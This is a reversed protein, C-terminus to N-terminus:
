GHLSGRLAEGTAKAEAVAQEPVPPSGKRLQARGALALGLTLLLLGGTVILLSAWLPLFTALAAAVTALGFGIAFLGFLVAGLVLATGAGLAALKHRLEIAALEGELRALTRMREAVEQVVGVVSGNRDVASV